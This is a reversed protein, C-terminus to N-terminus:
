QNVNKIYQKIEKLHKPITEYIESRTSSNKVFRPADQRTQNQVGSCFDWISQVSSCFEWISRADSIKPLTQPIYPVLFIVWFIELKWVSGNGLGASKCQAWSWPAHLTLIKPIGHCLLTVRIQYPTTFSHLIQWCVISGSIRFHYFESWIMPPLLYEHPMLTPAMLTARIALFPWLIAM